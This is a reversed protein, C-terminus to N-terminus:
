QTNYFKPTSQTLMTGTSNLKSLYINLVAENNNTGGIGRGPMPITPLFLLVWLLVVTLLIPRLFMSLTTVDM